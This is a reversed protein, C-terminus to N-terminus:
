CIERELVMKLSREGKAIQALYEDAACSQSLEAMKDGERQSVAEFPIGLALAALAGHYRQALVFAAASVERILDQVSRVPVVTGGTDGALKSCFTREAPDDPQLSLVRVVDWSQGCRLQIALDIFQQPSNKRPILILLKQSSQTRKQGVLLSFIPDFTQIVEKNLGWAEVRARSAADRVSVFSAHSTVWRACWEGAGCWVSHTSAPGAGRRFPGIGQFALIIKKRFIWAVFGHWWWLFCARTSETDTFLTGGGFVMGDCNRLTGLTRWWHAFFLSRLGFPLRPLEGEKPHASVVHWEVKPFAHLFYEKLAEDGFNGVGYNGVLLYKVGTSYCQGRTSSSAYAGRGGPSPNPILPLFSNRRRGKQRSRQLM